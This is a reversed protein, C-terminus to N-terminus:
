VSTGISELSNNRWKVSPKKNKDINMGLLKALGKSKLSCNARSDILAGTVQINKGSPSTIQCTITAVDNPIIKRIFNIEIPNPWSIEAEPQMEEPVKQSLTNAQQTAIRILDSIPQLIHSFVITIENWFKEREKDSFNSTFHNLVPDKLAIFEANIMNYGNISLEKPQIHTFSDISKKNSSINSSKKSSTKNHLLSRESRPRASKHKKSSKTDSYTIKKKTVNVKYEESDSESNSSESTESFNSGSENWSCGLTNTELENESSTISNKSDSSDSSSEDSIIHANVRKSQGSKKKKTKSKSKSKTKHRSSKPKSSNKKIAKEMKTQNIHLDELQRHM